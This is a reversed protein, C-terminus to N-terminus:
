DVVRFFTVVMVTLWAAEFLKHFPKTSEAWQIYKHFRMLSNYTKQKVGKRVRIYNPLWVVDPVQALAGAAMIVPWHTPQWVLLMAFFIVGLMTDVLIVRHITRTTQLHDDPHDGYHPLMDLIFHSLFALPLAILPQPLVAGIVGGTIIHNVGTM